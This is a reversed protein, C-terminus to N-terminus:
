TANYGAVLMVSFHGSASRKERFFYEKHLAGPSFILMTPIHHGRAAGSLKSLTVWSQARSLPHSTEEDQKFNGSTDLSSKTM